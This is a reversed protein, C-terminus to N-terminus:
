LNKVAWLAAQLRNPVNIKKFIHYIHTKVTHPSICLRDAIEENGAGASVLALIECERPTLKPDAKKQIQGERKNELFFKALIDRSVWLEGALIAQVGKCLREASDDEYFFGRVGRELAKKELAPSPTVNFLAVWCGERSFNGYGAELAKLCADSDKGACDLLVLERAARASDRSASKLNLKEGALCRMGTERALLAALLENQLKRPGQIYIVTDTL